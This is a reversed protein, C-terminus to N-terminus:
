DHDRRNRLISWGVMLAVIAVIQSFVLVLTRQASSALELSTSELTENEEEIVKAEVETKEIEEIPREKLKTMVEGKRAARQNNRKSVREAAKVM